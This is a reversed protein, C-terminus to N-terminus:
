IKKIIFECRPNEKDIFKQAVIKICNNNGNIIIVGSSLTQVNEGVEIANNIGNDQILIAM